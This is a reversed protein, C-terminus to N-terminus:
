RSQRCHEHWVELLLTRHELIISRIRGLDRAPFGRNRALEGRDLWWKSTCADREVHVPPPERCDLSYFFFRYPGSIGSITPM